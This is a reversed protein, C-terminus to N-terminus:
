SRISPECGVDPTPTPTSNGRRVSFIALLEACNVFPLTEANEVCEVYGVVDNPSCANRRYVRVIYNEM